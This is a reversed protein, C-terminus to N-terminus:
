VKYHYRLIEKMEGEHEATLIFVHGGKSIYFKLSAARQRLGGKKIASAYASSCERLDGKRLYGARLIVVSVFSIFRYANSPIQIKAFFRGSIFLPISKSWRSPKSSSRLPIVSSESHQFRRQAASSNSARPPVKNAKAARDPHRSPVKNAKAGRDPPRSPVKNAEAGRDPPRPPVKKAKAGRDPPRSPVKKAKAGRDSPHPPM